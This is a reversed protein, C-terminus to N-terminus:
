HHSGASWKENRYRYVHELNSSNPCRNIKYVRCEACCNYGKSPDSTTFSECGVEPCLRCCASEDEIFRKIFAKAKEFM